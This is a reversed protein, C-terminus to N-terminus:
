GGFGGRASFGGRSLTVAKSSATSPASARVTSRSMTVPRGVNHVKGISSGAGTIFTYRDKKTTYLPRYTYSSSRRGDSDLMNAVMFGAMFPVFSNSSSGSGSQCQGVGFDTECAAKNTYKVEKLAEQEAKKYAAECTSDAVKDSAKCQELSKFTLVEEQSGCGALASTGM